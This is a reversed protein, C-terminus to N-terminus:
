PKMLIRIKNLKNYKKKKSEQYIILLIVMTMSINIERDDLDDRKKM